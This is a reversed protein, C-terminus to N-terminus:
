PRGAEPPAGGGVGRFLGLPPFPCPPAALPAGGLFRLRGLRSGRRLFPGDGLSRGLRLLNGGLLGRGVGGIKRDFLRYGFFGGGFRFGALFSWDRINSRVLSRGLFHHRFLSSSFGLSALLRDHGLGIGGFRRGLFGGGLFRRSVLGGGFASVLHVRRGRVRGLGLGFLLGLLAESRGIACRHPPPGSPSASHHLPQRQGRWWQIKTRQDGEGRAASAPLLLTVRM